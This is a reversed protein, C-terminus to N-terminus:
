LYFVLYFLERKMKNQFKIGITMKSISLGKLIIEFSTTGWLIHLALSHSQCLRTHWAATGSRLLTSGSTLGLGSPAPSPAPGHLHQLSCRDTYVLNRLDASAFLSWKVM